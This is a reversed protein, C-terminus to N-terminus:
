RENEGWTIDKTGTYALLKFLYECSYICKSSSCGTWVRDSDRCCYNSNVCKTYSYCFSLINKKGPKHRQSTRYYYFWSQLTVYISPTLITFAKNWSLPTSPSPAFVVSPLHNMALVTADETPLMTLKSIVFGIKCQRWQCFDSRPFWWIKTLHYENSWFSFLAVNMSWLLGPQGTVSQM